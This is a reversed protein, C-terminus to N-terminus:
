AMRKASSNEYHADIQLWSDPILNNPTPAGKFWPSPCIVTADESYSLTAGWWSFSSNGIIYSSGYRMLELTEASSLDEVPVVDIDGRYVMPILALAEEPENSFLWIPRTVNQSTLLELSTGYYLTSPIGFSDDNKYDGLRIHVVIPAEVKARKVISAFKTSPNFLKLSRMSEMTQINEIYKASQFYSINIGTKNLKFKPDFGVGNSISVYKDKEGFILALLRSFLTYSNAMLQTAHRRASLRIGLNIVKQLLISRIYLEEISVNSPLSFSSIELVGFKDRRPKGIKDLLVVPSGSEAKSLAGALQFFQNGLGGMLLINTM